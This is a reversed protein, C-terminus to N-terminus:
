PLVAKRAKRHYTESDSLEFMRRRREKLSCNWASNGVPLHSVNPATDAEPPTWNIVELSMELITERASGPLM